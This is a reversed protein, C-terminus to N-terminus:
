AADEVHPVHHPYGGDVIVAGLEAHSQGIRMPAQAVIQLGRIAAFEILERIIGASYDQGEDDFDRAIERAYNLREPTM